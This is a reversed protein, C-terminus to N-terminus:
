AAGQSNSPPGGTEVPRGRFVPKHPNIFCWCLAGLLFLGGMVRLPVNWNGFRALLATVVLPSLFSGLQGATNMMGSVVGAHDGGIDICTGWAAGLMFMSAAVSLSILFAATAGQHCYTAVIMSAGALVYSLAGLGCRGLRRGFRASLADTTMGGLLDAVVSLVLPLGAYIGLRVSALGHQEHLYTPLWTICFYFAYSNPFYMLCLFLMNEDRLLERWYAWGKATPSETREMRILNLEAANVRWHAGPDDRFWWRWVIVWAFGAAGLLVFILRWGVFSGLMLVLLPTLGGSLHAGAFFIGQARGRERSPVWRAFTRTVSPWAGAEGLGFLFRALVLSSQNFAAATAMTFLSWWVVIRSLIRRPGIRDAWWATPVEFMAYALAFASYVRGMEEKSLRLDRMIDPALTAICARDLYTIAAMATVLVLVTHRARTPRQTETTNTRNL